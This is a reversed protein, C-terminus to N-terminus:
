EGSRVGLVIILGALVFCAVSAFVAYNHPILNLAPVRWFFITLSASGAWLFIVALLALVVAIILATRRNM